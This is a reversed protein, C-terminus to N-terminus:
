ATENANVENTQVIPVIYLNGKYTRISHAQPARSDNDDDNNENNRSGDDEFFFEYGESDDDIVILIQNFNNIYCKM